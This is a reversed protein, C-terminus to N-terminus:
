HVLHQHGCSYTLSHTDPARNSEKIPKRENGESFLEKFILKMLHIEWIINNQGFSDAVNFEIQPIWESCLNLNSMLSHKAIDVEILDMGGCGTKSTLLRSNNISQVGSYVPFVFSNQVFTSQQFMQSNIASFLVSFPGQFLLHCLKTVCTQLTNQDHTPLHTTKSFVM